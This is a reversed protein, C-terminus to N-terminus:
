EKQTGLTQHHNECKMGARQERRNNSSEETGVTGHTEKKWQAGEMKVESNKINESAAIAMGICRMVLLILFIWKRGSEWFEFVKEEEVEEEEGCIRKEERGARRKRVVSAEKRPGGGLVGVKAAERGKQKRREERNKNKGAEKEMEMEAEKRGEAM